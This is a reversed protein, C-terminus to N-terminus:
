FSEAYSNLMNTDDVFYFFDGAQTQNLGEVLMQQTMKPREGNQTLDINYFKFFPSDGWELNIHTTSNKLKKFCLTYFQWGKYSTKTGNIGASFKYKFKKGTAADTVLVNKTENLSGKSEHVAIKVMTALNTVTVSVIYCGKADKDGVYPFSVQRQVKSAVLSEDNEAKATTATFLAMVAVMMSIFKKMITNIIM